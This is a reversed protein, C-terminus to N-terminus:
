SLPFIMFLPFKRLTSPIIENVLCSQNNMSSCFVNIFYRYFQPFVPSIGLASLGIELRSVHRYCYMVKDSIAALTMAFTAFTWHTRQKSKCKLPSKGSSQSKCFNTDATELQAASKLSKQFFAQIRILSRKSRWELPLICIILM